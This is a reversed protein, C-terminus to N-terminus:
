KKEMFYYYWNWAHFVIFKMCSIALNETLFNRFKWDHFQNLKISKNFSNYKWGFYSIAGIEICTHGEGEAMKRRTLQLTYKLKTLCIYLSYTFFLILRCPVVPAFSRIKKPCGGLGWRHTSRYCNILKRAVEHACKVNNSQWLNCQLNFVWQGTRFRTWM